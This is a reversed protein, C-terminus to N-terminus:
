RIIIEKTIISPGSGNHIIIAKLVGGATPHFYGDTDPFISIDNYYWSVSVVDDCNYVRLPIAPNRVFTGDDRRDSVNLFIFPPVGKPMVKTTVDTRLGHSAGGSDKALLEVHYQTDPDLHEITYHGGKGVRVEGLPEGGCSWRVTVAQNALSPDIRWSLMVADQFPIIETFALPEIVRFSVCGDPGRTIGTLAFRLCSGDWLTLSPESVATLNRVNNGPFFADASSGAEQGAALVYAGQHGPNCNVRNDKWLNLMDPASRDIHYALLGNGGIFADRGVNDRVEFLFFEGERETEAKLYRGNRDVPELVYDGPVLPECTGLGLLELDLANFNPPTRGEDNLNGEDMLATSGWMATAKGGGAEGDVDYYDPLGLIHGFEHCLTGIGTLRAREGGVSWLEPTILYDDIQKGSLSLRIGHNSLLDQQPWINDEDTADAESLGATLLVVCDVRGDGDRDYDAFDVEGAVQRCAEAVAESINRDYIGSANRGYYSLGKSLTVTPALEFSFTDAGKYQSNFYSTAEGLMSQMGSRSATFSCDQFQTPIVVVRFAALLFALCFNM